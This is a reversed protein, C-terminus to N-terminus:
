RGLGPFPALRVEIATAVRPGLVDAGGVLRVRGHRPVADLLPLTPDALRDALALALWGGDRVAAPAAALADPWDSGLALWAREADAGAAIAARAAAAATAYRDDGAIREVAADAAAGAASAVAASVAAPGGLVVVRDVRDAHTALWARTAEPLRDRATLLLPGGVHGALTAGVLADAVVADDGRALFVTTAANGAALVADAVRAATGWRDPGGHRVVELDRDSLERSVGASVAVESGLVHVREVGLRDLEDAVRADLRDSSTLLLPADLAVALAGGGLADPFLDRRTLVADEAAAGSAISVDVATAVRDLGSLREVVGPAVSVFPAADQEPGRDADVFPRGDSRFGVACHCGSDDQWGGAFLWGGDNSWSLWTVDAGTSCCSPRPAPSAPWTRRAGDVEVVRAGEDWWAVFRGSPDWAPDHESRASPPGKGTALTRVTGDREVVHLRQLPPSTERDVTTLAVRSGDPAVDVGEVEDPVLRTVVVGLLRGTAADFRHLEGTQEDVAVVVDGDDSWRPRTWTPPEGVEDGNTGLVVREGTACDHVVLNRPREDDLGVVRRPGAPAPRQGYVTEPPADCPAAVDGTVVDVVAAGQQVHGRDVWVPPVRAFGPGWTLVRDLGTVPDVVRKGDDGGSLLVTTPSVAPEDGGAAGAPGVVVSSVVAAGVAM